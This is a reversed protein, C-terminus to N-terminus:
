PKTERHDTYVFEPSLWREDQPCSSEGSERVM